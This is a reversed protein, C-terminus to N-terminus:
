MYLHIYPDHGSFNLYIKDMDRKAYEKENSVERDDAEWGCGARMKAARARM